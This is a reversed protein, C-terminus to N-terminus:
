DGGTSFSRQRKPETVSSTAEPIPEEVDGSLLIAEQLHRMAAALSKKLEDSVATETGNGSLVATVLGRAESVESELAGLALNIRGMDAM